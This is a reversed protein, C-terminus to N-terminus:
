KPLFRHTRAEFSQPTPVGAGGSIGLIAAGLGLIFAALSQGAICLIPRGKLKCPVRWEGLCSYEHTFKPVKHLLGFVPVKQLQTSQCGQISQNTRHPMEKFFLVPTFPLCDTQSLQETTTLHRVKFNNPSFFIYDICGKQWGHFATYAPEELFEGVTICNSNASSANPPPPSAALGWLGELAASRRPGDVARKQLRWRWHPDTPAIAYASKLFFPLTVIFRDRPQQQQQPTAVADIGPAPATQRRLLAM